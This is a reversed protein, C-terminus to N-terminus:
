TVKWSSQTANLIVWRIFTSRSIHALSKGCQSEVQGHDWSISASCVPRGRGLVLLAADQVVVHGLEVAEVDLGGGLGAARCLTAM